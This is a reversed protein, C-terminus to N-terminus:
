EHYIFVWVLNPSAVSFWHWECALMDDPTIEHNLIQDKIQELDKRQGQSPEKGIIIHNPNYPKTKGKKDDYPGIIYSKNDDLDGGAIDLNARPIKKSLAKRSIKAKSYLFGQLHPTGTTPCTEYAYLIYVDKMEKLQKEDEQTYNNIVFVWNRIQAM